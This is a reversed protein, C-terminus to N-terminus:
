NNTNFAPPASLNLLERRGNPHYGCVLALGLPTSFIYVIRANLRQATQLLIGDMWGMYEKFVNLRPPVSWSVRLGENLALRGDVRTLDVKVTVTSGDSFTQSFTETQDAGALPPAASPQPPLPDLINLKM